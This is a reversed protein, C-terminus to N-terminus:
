LRAFPNLTRWGMPQSANPSGASFAAAGVAPDMGAAPGPVVNRGHAFLEAAHAERQVPATFEGRAVDLIVASLLGEEQVEQFGAADVAAACDDVPVRDVLGNEGVFLHDVPSAPTGVGDDLAALHRLPKEADRVERLLQQRGFLAQFAPGVPDAEHLAVPDASAFTKPEVEGELGAIDSRSPVPDFDECRSM